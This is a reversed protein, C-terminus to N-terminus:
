GVKRIAELFAYGFYDDPEIYHGETYENMSTIFLIKHRNYRLNYEYAMRIFLEFKSPDENIVIPSYPYRPSTVKIEQDGRPTADWGPSVSPFYPLDSAASFAPWESARKHILREYDQLYEGKWEPLFVYHSIADFGAYKYQKIFSPAPNLAILFIDGFGNEMLYRRASAIIERAADIGTDRIFFTPDFISFLYRGDVKLYNPRVFYNEAVFKILNLFDEKSTYVFRSPHVVPGKLSKVPLIGRPMRNAWMLAFKISRNEECRLFAEDLPRNLVRKGYSWYFCYIFADIGYKLALQIQWRSTEIQSDDYIKLPKRPQRHGEFRPRANLLLEWENLPRGRRDRRSPDIHWGPYIYAAKIFNNEM